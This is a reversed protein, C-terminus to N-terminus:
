YFAILKNHFAKTGASQVQDFRMFGCSESELHGFLGALTKFQATCGPRNPCQYLNSKHAPSNLHQSLGSLKGFNRHCLYCEYASGNWSQSNAEYIADDVESYWGIQKTTIAHDTDRSKVWEYINSRNVQPANACSGTELHNSVGSYTTFGVKCFPCKSNAGQHIRSNLHKCGTLSYIQSHFDNSIDFWRWLMKMSSIATAIRVTIGLTLILEWTSMAITRINLRALAHRANSNGTTWLKNINSWPEWRPLHVIVYPVSTTPIGTIMTMWITTRKGNHTSASVVAM